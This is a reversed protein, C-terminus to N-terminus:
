ATSGASGRWATSSGPWNRMRRCRAQNFIPRKKPDIGAAIYAATVERTARSVEAHAYGVDQTIAHMDVVCYLCEM